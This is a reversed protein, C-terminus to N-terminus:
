KAQRSFNPEVDGVIRFVNVVFVPFDGEQFNTGGPRTKASLFTGAMLRRNGPKGPLEPLLKPFAYEQVEGIERWPMFRQWFAHSLM